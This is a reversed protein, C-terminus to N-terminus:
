VRGQDPAARSEFWLHALVVLALCVLVTRGSWNSALLDLLLPVAIGTIIRSITRLLDSSHSAVGTVVGLTFYAAVAGCLL